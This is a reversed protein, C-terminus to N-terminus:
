DLCAAEHACVGPNALGELYQLVVNVEPREKANEHWCKEAIKWVAPTMGPTEFRRPKPPRKENSILKLVKNDTCEPFPMKGTVLQSRFHDSGPRNTSESFSRVEVIIMSLSYVDSKYTPKKPRVFGEISLREPACWRVTGGHDPTSATVSDINKTISCVGFDSLRPTGEM